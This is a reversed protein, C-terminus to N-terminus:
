YNNNDIILSIVDKCIDYSFGKYTLHQILKQYIKHKDEKKLKEYRKKGLYLANEFETERDIKDIAESIDERSIGKQYLNQKIKAKGYRNSTSNFYTIKEALRADDIFKNEKLYEVTENIIDDDFDALKERIKKESCDTKDLTKFAKNRAKFLMDKKLLNKLRDEDVELGKSLKFDYILEAYVGMFFEDDIYINVRDKNKKQVELKTITAM